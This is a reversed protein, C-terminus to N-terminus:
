EYNSLDEWDEPSLEALLPLMEEVVADDDPAM